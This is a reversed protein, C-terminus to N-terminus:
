NLFIKELAEVKCPLFTCKTYNKFVRAKITLYKPAVANLPVQIVFYCYLVQFHSRAIFYLNLKITASYRFIPNNMVINGNINRVTNQMSSKEQCVEKM